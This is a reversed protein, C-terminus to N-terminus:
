GHQELWAEAKAKLKSKALEKMLQVVLPSRLDKYSDFADGQKTGPYHGVVKLETELTKEGGLFFLRAPSPGSMWNIVKYDFAKWLAAFQSSIWESENECFLLDSVNSPHDPSGSRQYSKHKASYKYGFRTIAERGGLMLGLQQAGHMHKWKECLAELRKRAPESENPPTRLLLGYVPFIIRGTGGNDWSRETMADMGTLFASLAASPGVMAEISRLCAVSLVMMPMRRKLQEHAEDVSLPAPNEEPKLEEFPPADNSKRLEALAINRHIETETGFKLKKGPALDPLLAIPGIASGHGLAFQLDLEPTLAAGLRLYKAGFANKGHEFGRSPEPAEARKKKAAM